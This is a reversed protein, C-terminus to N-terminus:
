VDKAGGKQSYKSQKVNKILTMLSIKYYGTCNNNYLRMPVCYVPVISMTMSDPLDRSSKLFTADGGLYQPSAV